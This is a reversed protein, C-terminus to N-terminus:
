GATGLCTQCEGKLLIESVEGIEQTRRKSGATLELPELCQVRGCSWCVFHPHKNQDPHQLNALEFRWVHDGLETRLLLGEDTLDSLNRFVTAKDFGAPVLQEALDAHTVPAQAERLAQMVAIRAPTARLQRSRLLERIEEIEQFSHRSSRTAM